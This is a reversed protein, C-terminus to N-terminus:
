PNILRELPDYAFGVGFAVDALSDPKVRLAAMETYTVWRRDTVIDEPDRWGPDLTGRTVQARFFVEVQHFHREPAHFENVLCPDGVAITLGTEEFVERILTDPLSAGMEAGGGPACWLTTHPGAFANVLLLQGDEVIVARAALRPVPRPEPM